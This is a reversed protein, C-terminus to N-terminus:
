PIYTFLGAVQDWGEGAHRYIMTTGRHDIKIAHLGDASVAVRGAEILRLRVPPWDGNPPFDGSYTTHGPHTPPLSTSIRLENVTHRYLAPFDQPNIWNPWDIDACNLQLPETRYRLAREITAVSFHRFADEFEDRHWPELDDLYWDVMHLYEPLTIPEHTSFWETSVYTASSDFALEREFELQNALVQCSVSLDVRESIVTERPRYIEPTSLLAAIVIIVM